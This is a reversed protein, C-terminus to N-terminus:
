SQVLTVILTTSGKSKETRTEYEWIQLAAEVTRFDSQLPILNGEQRLRWYKGDAVGFELSLSRKGARAALRIQRQILALVQAGDGAIWKLVSAPLTPYQDTRPARDWSAMFQIGDGEIFEIDPAPLERQLTSSATNAVVLLEKLGDTVYGITDEELYCIGNIIGVFQNAFEHLTIVVSPDNNNQSDDDLELIGDSDVELLWEQIEHRVQHRAENSCMGFSMKLKPFRDLLREFADGASVHHGPDTITFGSKKLISKLLKAANGVQIQYIGQESLRSGNDVLTALQSEALLTAKAQAVSQKRREAAKSKANKIASRAESEIENRSPFRPM